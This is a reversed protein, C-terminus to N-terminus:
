PIRHSVGLTDLPLFKIMTGSQIIKSCFWYKNQTVELVWPLVLGHLATFTERENM